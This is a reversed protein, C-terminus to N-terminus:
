FPFFFSLFFFSWKTKNNRLFYQRSHNCVRDMMWWTSNGVTVLCSFSFLRSVKEEREIESRKVRKGVNWRKKEQLASFSHPSPSRPSAKDAARKLRSLSSSPGGCVLFQRGWIRTSAFTSEFNFTFCLLSNESADWSLAPFPSSYSLDFDHLKPYLIEPWFKAVQICRCFYM